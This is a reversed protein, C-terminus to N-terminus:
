VIQNSLRLNIHPRSIHLHTICTYDLKQKCNIQNSNGPFPQMPDGMHTRGTEVGIFGHTHMLLLSTSCWFSASLLRYVDGGATQVGRQSGGHYRIDKVIPSSSQSVLTGSTGAGVLRQQQQGAFHSSLFNLRILLVNVAIKM